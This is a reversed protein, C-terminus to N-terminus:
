RIDTSRARLRTHRSTSVLRLVSVVIVECSVDIDGCGTRTTLVMDLMRVHTCMCVRVCKWMCVCKVCVCLVDKSIHVCRM